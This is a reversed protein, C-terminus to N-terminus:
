QSDVCSVVVIELTIVILVVEIIQAFVLCDIKIDVGISEQSLHICFLEWIYNRRYQSQLM